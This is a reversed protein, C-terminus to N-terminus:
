QVALQYVVTQQDQSHIHLLYIGPSLASVNITSENKVQQIFKGQLDYLTITSPVIGSATHISVHESAPNPSLTWELLNQANLALYDIIYCDSTDVCGAVNELIVAYIGDQTPPFSSATESPIIMQTECDFWQYSENPSATLIGTGVDTVTTNVQNVTLNLTLISDCGNEMEVIFTPENTSSFYTVGDLWTYSDCTSVVIEREPKPLITLNLTVVSDCGHITQLTTTYIGSEDLFEGGFFVSGCSSESFSSAQTPYLTLNLTLLSDAGAQNPITDFYTGSQTYTTGQFLYSTGCIAVTFTSDTDEPAAPTGNVRLAFVDYNGSNSQFIGNTSNGSGAVVCGGNSTVCIGGVFDSNTGGFLISWLLTGSADIKGLWGDGNGQHGIFDMNNSRTAGAIYYSGDGLVRISHAADAASGGYNKAWILEGLASIKFAIADSNGYPNELIASANIASGVVMFTGDANQLIDNGNEDTTTNGYTQQWEIDGNQALKVVAIDTTASISTSNEFTGVVIYGGDLCSKVSRADDFDFSGISKEWVLDGLADVKVVWMDSTGQPSASVNGNAGQTYGVMIYGGDSTVDVSSAAESASSGYIREWELSGQADLKVLWYEQSSCVTCSPDFGLTGQTNGVLIFGGDATQKVDTIDDDLMTGISQNWVVNGLADLKVIIGDETGINQGNISVQIDGTTSNTQGVCLFGGDTTPCVEYFYDFLNGGLTRTWEISQSFANSGVLLLAFTANKLKMTNM